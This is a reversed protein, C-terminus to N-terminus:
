VGSAQLDRIWERVQSPLIDIMRMDGLWPLIQKNIRYTYGERTTLEM